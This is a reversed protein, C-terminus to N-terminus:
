NGPSNQGEIDRLGSSDGWPRRYHWEPGKEEGVVVEEVVRSVRPGGTVRRNRYITGM